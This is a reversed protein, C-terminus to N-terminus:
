LSKGVTAYDSNFVDGLIKQNSVNDIHALFTTNLEVWKAKYSVDVEANCHRM